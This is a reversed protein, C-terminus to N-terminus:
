PLPSFPNSPERIFGLLGLFLDIKRKKPKRHKPAFMAAQASSRALNPLAHYNKGRAKELIASSAMTLLTHVEYSSLREKIFM